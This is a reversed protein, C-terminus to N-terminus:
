PGESRLYIYLLYVAAFENMATNNVFTPIRVVNSQGSLLSLKMTILNLSLEKKLQLM